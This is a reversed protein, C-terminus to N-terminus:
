AQAESCSSELSPAPSADIAQNSIKNRYRAVLAHGFKKWSTRWMPNIAVFEVGGALGNAILKRVINDAFRLYCDDAYKYLVQYNAFENDDWLELVKDQLAFATLGVSQPLERIRTESKHVYAQLAKRDRAIEIHARPLHAKIASFRSQPTTLMGQFHETGEEGREIQGQLKWGPPLNPAMDAATPNNITISWCTARESM